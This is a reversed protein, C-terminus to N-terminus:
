LSLQFINHQKIVNIIDGQWNFVHIVTGAKGADIRSEKAYVAMILNDNFYVSTYYLMKENDNETLSEIKMPEKSTSVSFRDKGDLSMFNIQNFSMMTIALRSNDPKVNLSGAFFNINPAKQTYLQTAFVNKMSITNYVSLNFNDVSWIYKGQVRELQDYELKLFVTDKLRQIKSTNNNCINALNVKNEIVLEQQRVSKTLNVALLFQLNNDELWIVTGSTDIYNKNCLNLWNTFENPGRGKKIINKYLSKYSNTSYVSIFGENNMPTFAVLFTDVIEMEMVGPIELNVKEGNLVMPEGKFKVYRFDGDFINHKNNCGLLLFTTFILLCFFRAKKM